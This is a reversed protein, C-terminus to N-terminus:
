RLYLTHDNVTFSVKTQTFTLESVLLKAFIQDSLILLIFFVYRMLYIQRLPTSETHTSFVKNYQM